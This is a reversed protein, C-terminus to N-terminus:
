SNKYGRKHLTTAEVTFSVANDPSGVAEQATELETQLEAIKVVNSPDVGISLCASLAGDLKSQVGAVLSAADAGAASFRLINRRSDKVAKNTAPVPGTSTELMLTSGEPNVDAHYDRVYELASGVNSFALTQRYDDDSARALFIMTM